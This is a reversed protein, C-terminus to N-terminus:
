DGMVSEEERAGEIQVLEPQPSPHFTTHSELGQPARWFDVISTQHV